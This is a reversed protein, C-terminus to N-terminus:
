RCPVADNYVKRPRYEVRKRQREHGWSELVEEGATVEVWPSCRSCKRIFPGIWGIVGKSDKEQDSTVQDM